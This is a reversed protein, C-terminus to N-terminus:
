YYKGPNEEPTFDVNRTTGRLYNPGLTYDLKHDTCFEEGVNIVFSAGKGEGVYETPRVVYTCDGSTRAMCLAFVTPAFVQPILWLTPAFVPPILWVSQPCWLFSGHRTRVGVTFKM